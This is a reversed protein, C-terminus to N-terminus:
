RLKLKTKFNFLNFIRKHHIVAICCSKVSIYSMLIKINVSFFELVKLEQSSIALSKGNTEGYLIIRLSDVCQLELTFKKLCVYFDFFKFESM